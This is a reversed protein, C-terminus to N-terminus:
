EICEWICELMGARMLHYNVKAFDRVQLAEEALELQRKIRRKIEKKKM